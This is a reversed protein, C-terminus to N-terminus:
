FNLHALLNFLATLVISTGPNYSWADKFDSVQLCTELQSQWIGRKESGVVLVYVSDSSLGDVQIVQKPEHTEPPSELQSIKLSISSQFCALLVFCM